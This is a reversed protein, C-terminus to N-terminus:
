PTPCLLDPQCGCVGTSATTGGVIKQFMKMSQQSPANTTNGVSDGIAVISDTSKMNIKKFNIIIILLAGVRCFPVMLFYLVIAISSM